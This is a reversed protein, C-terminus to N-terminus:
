AVRKFRSFQFRQLDGKPTRHDHPRTEMLRFSPGLTASLSGADYRGVPLGSCRKPGGPAFTGIVVQGGPNVAKRVCEVYAMRDSQATLFHFAARDHWVDYGHDPQRRTVDAIVWSVQKARSGLRERSTALAKGSLDLVTISRFAEVVLVDVLRSAGGGIDIISANAGAGAGTAKILDLSIAPEEEFWSVDREGKAQYIDQWHAQREFITM